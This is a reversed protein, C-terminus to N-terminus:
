THHIGLTLTEIRINCHFPVSYAHIGECFTKSVVGKQIPSDVAVVAHHASNGLFFFEILLDFNLTHILIIFLPTSDKM